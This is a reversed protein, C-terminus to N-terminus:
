PAGLRGDDLRLVRDAVRRLREDHSVVVVAVAEVSALTRLLGAVDRGNVSDLNATPEDALLLHPRNALARAISVRQKEGGSLERARFGLRGELGARLLLSRARAAADAGRRGAVNLAIEVNEAATLAELLNFSQFVFGIRERRIQALDRRGLAAVDIGDIRVSGATPRLLAGLMTLLTTKGSGSPGTILVLEGAAVDLDVDVVARVLTRGVGFERGLGRVALVPAIPPGETV